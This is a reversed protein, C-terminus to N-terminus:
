NLYKGPSPLKELIQKELKDLVERAITIDFDMDKRFKSAAAADGLMGAENFPFQRKLKEIESMVNETRNKLTIVQEEPTDRNQGEMAVSGKYEALVKEELKALKELEGHEYATRASTWLRKAKKDEKGAMEPHVFGAISLYLKKLQEAEQFPLDGEPSLGRVFELEKKMNKLITNHNEFEKELTRDIYEVDIPRNFKICAQMMELKLKTKAITIELKHLEYKPEGFKIIFDNKLLNSAYIEMYDKEVLAEVFLRKQLMYENSSNNM